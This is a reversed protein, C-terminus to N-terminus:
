LVTTSEVGPETVPCRWPIVTTQHRGFERDSLVRIWDFLDLSDITVRSQFKEFSMTIKEFIEICFVSCVRGINSSLM